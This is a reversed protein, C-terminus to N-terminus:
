ERLIAFRSQTTVCFREAHGTSQAWNLPLVRGM